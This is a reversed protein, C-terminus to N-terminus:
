LYAIPAYYNGEWGIATQNLFGFGYPDAPVPFNTGYSRPLSSDPCASVPLNPLPVYQGDRAPAAHRALAAHGTVGGSQQAPAAPRSAAASGAPVSMAVTTAVAVASTVLLAIRRSTIGM